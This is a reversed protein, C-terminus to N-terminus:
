ISLDLEAITRTDVYDGDDEQPSDDRIIAGNDIVVSQADKVSQISSEIANMRADMREMFKRLEAYDSNTDSKVENETEEIDRTDTDTDEVIQEEDNKSVSEDPKPM